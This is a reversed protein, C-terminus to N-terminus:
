HLENELENQNADDALNLEIDLMEEFDEEVNDCNPCGQTLGYCLDCM